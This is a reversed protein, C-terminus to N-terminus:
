RRSRGDARSLQALTRSAMARLRPTKASAACSDLLPIAKPGLQGLLDNVGAAKWTDDLMFCLYAGFQPDQRIERDQALAEQWQKVADRRWYKRYYFVGLAFRPWAADPDRALLAKIRSAAEDLRGSDLLSWIAAHEDDPPVAHGAPAPAPAPAAIPAPAPKPEPTPPAVAVTPPPAPTSPPPPPAAPAIPPAVIPKAAVSPAQAAPLASPAQGGSSRLASAGLVAVAGFAVAILAARRPARQGPRRKAPAPRAGASVLAAMLDDATAFRVDPTPAVARLIVRELEESIGREPSVTRPPPVPAGGAIAAAAEAPPERGTCMVYLLMGAAYLDARHDLRAALRRPPLYCSARAGDPPDTTQGARPLGIKLLDAPASPVIWLNDPLLARHVVGYGHLHRLGECLQVGLSVARAVTLEPSGLETRLTHGEPLESVLFPRGEHAGFGVISLCREHRLRSLSRAEREFRALEGREQVHRADWLELRAGRGDELTEARFVAGHESQGTVEVLRWRGAVVQNLFADPGRHM